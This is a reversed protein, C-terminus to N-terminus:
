SCYKRGMMLIGGFGGGEGDGIDPSEVVSVQAPFSEGTQIISVSEADDFVRTNGLGNFQTSPSVLCLVVIVYPIVM